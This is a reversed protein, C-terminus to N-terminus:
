LKNLKKYAILSGFLVIFTYIKPSTLPGGPIASILVFLILSFYLERRVECGIRGWIYFLLGVTILLFVLGFRFLLYLYDNDIVDVEFPSGFMLRFISFNQTLLSWHQTRAELSSFSTFRELIPQWLEPFSLYSLILVALLLSSWKIKNNITLYIALLCSIIGTRSFTMLCLFISISVSLILFWKFTHNVGYYQNYKLINIAILINIAYILSSVNPNGGIGIHRWYSDLYDNMGPMAVLLMLQKSLAGSPWLYFIMFDLLVLMSLLFSTSKVTCNVNNSIYYFSVIM